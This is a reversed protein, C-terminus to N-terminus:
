PALPATIFDKRHEFLAEGQATHVSHVPPLFCTVCHAQIQVCCKTCLREESTRGQSKRNPESTLLRTDLYRKLYLVFQSQLGTAEWQLSLFHRSLLITNIM